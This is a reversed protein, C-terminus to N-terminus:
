RQHARHAPPLSCQAITNIHRGLGLRVHPLLLDTDEGEIFAIAPRVKKRHLEALARIILLMTPNNLVEVLTHWEGSSNRSRQSIM